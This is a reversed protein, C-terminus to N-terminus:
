GITVERTIYEGEIMEDTVYYTRHEVRDRGACYTVHYFEGPAVDRLYEGGMIVDDSGTFTFSPCTDGASMQWFSYSAVEGSRESLFAGAYKASFIVEGEAIQRTNMGPMNPYIATLNECVPEAGYENIIKYLMNGGSGNSVHKAGYIGMVSEGNLATLERAFNYAMMKERYATDLFIGNRTYYEGQEVNNLALAYEETNEKGQEELREMYWRGLTDHKHGIDTGHFVTEPCYKKILRYFSQVVSSGAPSGSFFDSFDELLTDDEDAMWLNLLSAGYYPLEVFLHRLGQERYYQEWLRFEEVLIEANAHAEGYLYATGCEGGSLPLREPEEIIEEDAEEPETGNGNCACVSLLLVACLFLAICRKTTKM